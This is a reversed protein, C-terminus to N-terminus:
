MRKKLLRFYIIGYTLGMLFYIIYFKILRHKGLYGGINEHDYGTILTLAKPFLLFLLGFLLAWQYKKDFFYNGSSFLIINGTLVLPAFALIYCLLYYFLFYLAALGVEDLRFSFGKQPFLFTFLLDLVLSYVIFVLVFSILLLTNILLIKLIKPM